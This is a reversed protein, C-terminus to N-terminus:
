LHLFNGCYEEDCGVKTELKKRAEGGEKTDSRRFVGDYIEELKGKLMGLRGPHRALNALIARLPRM